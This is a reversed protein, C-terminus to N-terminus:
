RFSVPTDLSCSSPCVSSPVFGFTVVMANNWNADLNFAALGGIVWLGIVVPPRVRGTGIAPLRELVFSRLPLSTGRLALWAIM